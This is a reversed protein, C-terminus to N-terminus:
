GWATNTKQIYNWSPKSHQNNYWIILTFSLITQRRSQEWILINTQMCYQKDVYNIQVKIIFSRLTVETVSTILCLSYTHLQIYNQLGQKSGGRMKIFIFYFFFCILPTKDNVYSLTKYLREVPPCQDWVPQFIIYVLYNLVTKKIFYILLRISPVQKINM